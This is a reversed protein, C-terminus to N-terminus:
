ITIDILEQVVQDGDVLGVAQLVHELCLGDMLWVRPASVGGIEKKHHHLLLANREQQVVMFITLAGHPALNMRLLCPLLRDSMMHHPPPSALPPSGRSQPIPPPAGPMEGWGARTAPACGMLRLKVM